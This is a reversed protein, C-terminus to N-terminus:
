AFADNKPWVPYVEHFALRFGNRAFQIGRGGGEKFM